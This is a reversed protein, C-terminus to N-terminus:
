WRVKNSYWNRRPDGLCEGLAVLRYGRELATEIMHEALSYATFYHIDHALVIYSDVDSDWSVGDDFTSKSTEIADEAQHNYDWTDLNWNVVHYGLAAMDALCDDSCAGYPPRMYLPYHGFVGYLAEENLIMEDHRTSDDVEDLNAHTWGHSGIQHGERLIRRLVSVWGNEPDTIDAAMNNGNIFFTADANYRKLLHLVHETYKWPGDDFTLAIVGPQNCSRIIEGYPVAGTAKYSRSKPLPRSAWPGGSASRDSTTSIQTRNLYCNSFGEGCQHLTQGYVATVSTAAAVLSTLTRTLLLM